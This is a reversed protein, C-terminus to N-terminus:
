TRVQSGGDHCRARVCHEIPGADLPSDGSSQDNELSCSSMLHLLRRNPQSIRHDHTTVSQLRTSIRDSCPGQADPVREPIHPSSRPCREHRSLAVPALLGTVRRVGAIVCRRAPVFPPSANSLGSFRSTAFVVLLRRTFNNGAGGWDGARQGSDGRLRQRSRDRNGGVARDVDRASAAGRCNPPNRRCGDAGCAPGRCNVTGVSGVVHM